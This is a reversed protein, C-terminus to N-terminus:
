IDLEYQSLKTGAEKAKNIRNELELLREKAAINKTDNLTKDLQRSLKSLAHAKEYDAVYL